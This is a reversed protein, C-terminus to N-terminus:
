EKIVYYRNFLASRVPKEVRDSFYEDIARRAGPYKETDQYEDFAVIGGRVVRPFLTELVERYSQYLDVDIHLLAIGEGDYNAVTNEFYGPVLTIMRDIFDSSLGSRVLFRAVADQTTRYHGKRSNPHTTPEDEEAPEPFGEFSDYGIISRETETAQVCLSLMYLSRGWGVGCEVVDGRLADIKEMLAFFYLLRRAHVSVMSIPDGEALPDRSRRIEVGFAGTLLRNVAAKM